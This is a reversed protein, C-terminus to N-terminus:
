VQMHHINSKCHGAALAVRNSPQLQRSPQVSLHVGGREQKADKERGALDEAGVCPLAHLGMLAQQLM